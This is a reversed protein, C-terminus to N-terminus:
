SSTQKWPYAVEIEGKRFYLQRKKKTSAHEVWVAEVHKKRFSRIFKPDWLESAVGLDKCCRM